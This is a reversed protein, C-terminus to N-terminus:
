LGLVLIELFKKIKYIRVYIITKDIERPELKCLNIINKSNELLYYIKRM